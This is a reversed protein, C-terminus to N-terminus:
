WAVVPSLALRVILPEVCYAGHAEPVAPRAVGIRAFSVGTAFHIAEVRPIKTPLSPSGTTSALAGVV